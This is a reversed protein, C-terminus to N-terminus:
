SSARKAQFEHAARRNGGFVVVNVACLAPLVFVESVYCWAILSFLALVFWGNLLLNPGQYKWKLRETLPTRHLALLREGRSRLLYGEWLMGALGLVTGWAVSLWLQAVTPALGPQGAWGRLLWDIVVFVALGVASMRFWALRSAPNWFVSM